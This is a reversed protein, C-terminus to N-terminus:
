SALTNRQTFYESLRVLAPGRARDQEEFLHHTLYLANDPTLDFTKVYHAQLETPPLSRAWALFTRLTERDEGTAPELAPLTEEMEGLHEIFEKTPYELLVSLLKYFRVVGDGDGRGRRTRSHQTPRSAPVADGECRRGAQAKRPVALLRRARGGLLQRQRLYLGDTGPLCPSGRPAARRPQDPYCLAGRLPLPGAAPVHGSRDTLGVEELCRLDPNGEVHVSRQYQRMAILRKLGRVIPAEDGATLLNALYKIPIRLLEVNPIVHEPDTPIAGQDISTQVPSLPPIYWVMPLTRFEPHIPFALRWEVVLKYIPSRQAAEIWSDPIGDAKAQAIVEPDHPNLFIGMQAEYLDQESPVSAAEAIRDADYLVIGNFRIRGVCSESCVTPLGAEWRPYCATCKEAKGSEWNYFVKKYPCSSICMRWSRCKNQDVLVIGDEERKYMSGSPCAAVCAPNICHNCIRPLYMQFSQEFEAYVEKEIDQFNHDKARHEFAGALDDEWNPGWAIKEM